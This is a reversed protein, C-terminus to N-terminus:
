DITLSYEINYLIASLEGLLRSTMADRDITRLHDVLNSAATVLADHSNVARVIFTADAESQEMTEVSAPGCTIQGYDSFDLTAICLKGAKIRWADTMCDYGGMSCLDAIWPTPTHATM